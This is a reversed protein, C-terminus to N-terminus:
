ARGWAHEIPCVDCGRSSLSLRPFSGEAASFPPPQPSPLSIIKMLQHTRVHPIDLTPPFTMRSGCSAAPPHAPLDPWQCSGGAPVSGLAVAAPHCQQLERVKQLHLTVATLLSVLFQPVTPM